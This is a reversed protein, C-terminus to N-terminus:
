AIEMFCAVQLKCATVFIWILRCRTQLLIFIYSQLIQVLRTATTFLSALIAHCTNYLTEFSNKTSIKRLKTYVRIYATWRGNWGRLQYKKASNDNNATSKIYLTATCTPYSLWASWQHRPAKLALVFIKFSVLISAVSEITVDVM